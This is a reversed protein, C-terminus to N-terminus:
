EDKHILNWKLCWAKYEEENIKGDRYDNKVGIAEMTDAGLSYSEVRNPLGTRKNWKGKRKILADYAAKWDRYSLQAIIKDIAAFNKETKNNMNNDMNTTM